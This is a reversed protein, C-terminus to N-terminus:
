QITQPQGDLTAIRLGGGSGIVVREHDIWESWCQNSALAVPDGTTSCVFIQGGPQPLERPILHTTDFRIGSTGILHRGDPAVDNAVIPAMADDSIPLRFQECTQKSFDIRYRNEMIGIIAISADTMVRLVHCDRVGAPDKDGPDGTWRNAPNGKPQPILQKDALVQQTGSQIDILFLQVNTIFSDLNADLWYIKSFDGAIAIRLHVLVDFRMETPIPRFKEARARTDVFLKGISAIIPVKASDLSTEVELTDLAIIQIACDSPDDKNRLILVMAKKLENSLMMMVGPLAVTRPTQGIDLIMLETKMELGAGFTRLNTCVRSKGNSIFSRNTGIPVRHLLEGRLNFVIVSLPYIEAYRDGKELGLAAYTTGDNMPCASHLERLGNFKGNEDIQPSRFDAPQRGDFTAFRIRSTIYAEEFNPLDPLDHDEPLSFFVGNGIFSSNLSLPHPAAGMPLEIRKGTAAEVLLSPANSHSVFFSIPRSRLTYINETPALNQKKKWRDVLIAGTIGAFAVVVLFIATGIGM